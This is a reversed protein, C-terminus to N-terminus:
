VRGFRSWSEAPFYIYDVRGKIDSLPVPGFHRSDQSNARNDGLVFCHGNPIEIKKYETCPSSNCDERAKQGIGQTTKEPLGNVYAISDKIELSDGPMAVIRKIFDQHRQNPNVFVVVDGRKPSQQKYTTKNILIYDGPLLSPSMSASPIKYAQLLNDRISNALNSPYSVSVVIFMMYIYSRNYERLAFDHGIRKALMYSDIIAYLFVGLFLIISSIVAIVSFVSAASQVSVVIIPAFVFSFFFLALGKTLKGCYLHGLGTAGISLLVAVLRSREASANKDSEYM